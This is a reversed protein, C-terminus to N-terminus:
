LIAGRRKLQSRFSQQDYISLQAMQQASAGSGYLLDVPMRHLAQGVGFAAADDFSLLCSGTAMRHPKADQRPSSGPHFRIVEGTAMYALLDVRQQPLRNHDIVRNIREAAVFMADNVQLAGKLDCEAIAYDPLPLFDYLQCALQLAERAGNAKRYTEGDTSVAEVQAPLYTLFFETQNWPVSQPEEEPQSAGASPLSQPAGGPQSAGASPVHENVLLWEFSMAVAPRSSGRHAIAPSSKFGAFM